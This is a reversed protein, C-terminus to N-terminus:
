VIDEPSGFVGWGELEPDPDLPEIGGRGGGGVVGDVVRADVKLGTAGVIPPRSCILESTKEAHVPPLGLRYQDPRAAPAAVVGVVGEWYRPVPWM